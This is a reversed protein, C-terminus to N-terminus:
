HHELPLEAMEARTLRIWRFLAVLAIVGGLICVVVSVIIGVIALTVGFALMVPLYSPEPMHVEETPPALADTVPEHEATLEPM